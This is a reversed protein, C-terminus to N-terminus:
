ECSCSLVPVQVSSPTVLAPMGIGAAECAAADANVAERDAGARGLLLGAVLGAFTAVIVAKDLTM